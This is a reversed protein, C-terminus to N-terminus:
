FNNVCVYEDKVLEDSNSQLVLATQQGEGSNLQAVSTIRKGSSFYTHELEAIHSCCRCLIIRHRILCVVHSHVVGKITM